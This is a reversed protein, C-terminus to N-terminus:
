KTSENEEFNDLDKLGETSNIGMTVIASFWRQLGSIMVLKADNMAKLRENAYSVESDLMEVAKAAEAKFLQDNILFQFDPNKYLRQLVEVRKINFEHEERLEDATKAAGELKDFDKSM